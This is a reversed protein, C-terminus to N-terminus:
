ASVTRRSLLLGGAGVVVAFALMVALPTGVDGVGGGAVTTGIGDLFWRHPAVSSLATLWAPAGDLPFFSGGVMGLVIAVVSQWVNAQEATRALGAVVSVLSTAAVVAAVVLLAVAVPDGWSAGLLPVSALMLATVSVVGIVLSVLAKAAMVEHRRIPAALLRALTGDRREELYGLVGFSVNLFLFFVAMGAALYTSVDLSAGEGVTTADLRIRGQVTGLASAFEAAQAEPLELRRAVAGAAAEGRAQVAFQETLATVVDGHVDADADTVVPLTVREGAELAQSTGAPVVVAAHLDGAEVGARAEDETAVDVLAVTTGEGLFETAAPLYEDRFAEGVPGGDNTVVGLTLSGIGGGTVGGFVLSFVWALALPVVFGILLVSRDRFRQRLDKATITWITRM